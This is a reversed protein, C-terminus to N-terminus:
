RSAASNTGSGFHKSTACCLCHGGAASACALQGPEVLPRGPFREYISNTRAYGIGTLSCDDIGSTRQSNINSSSVFFSPCLNADYTKLESALDCLTRWRRFEKRILFECWIVSAVIRCTQSTAIVRRATRFASRSANPGREGSVIRASRYLRFRLGVKVTM